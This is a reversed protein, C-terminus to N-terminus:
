SIQMVLNIPFLKRCIYLADLAESSLDVLQDLLFTQLNLLQVIRLLSCPSKQHTNGFLVSALVCSFSTLEQLSTM